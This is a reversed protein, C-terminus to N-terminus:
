MMPIQEALSQLGSKLSSKETVSNHTYPYIIWRQNSTPHVFVMSFTKNKTLKDWNKVVFNLNDKKNLCVITTIGKESVTIAEDNLEPYMYYTHKRDKYEFDVYNKLIKYDKIERKMIDKNKVFFITWELLSNIQDTM